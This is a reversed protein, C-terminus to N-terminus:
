QHTPNFFSKYLQAAALPDPAKLVASLLAVGDVGLALVDKITHQDIGGAAFIPKTTQSRVAQLISPEVLECVNTSSSPFMSCFSLYDAERMGWLYREADNGCTIGLSFPRGIKLRISEIDAPVDDFHVGDLSTRTLWVWDENILVPVGHQHAVTCVADIFGKQDQGVTWHNWLQLVNTGGALALKIKPLVFDLGPAPDIVVYLGGTIPKASSPYRHMLSDM